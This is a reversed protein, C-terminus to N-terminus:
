AAELVETVALLGPAQLRFNADRVMSNGIARHTRPPRAMLAAVESAPIRVLTQPITLGALAGSLFTRDFTLTVLQM